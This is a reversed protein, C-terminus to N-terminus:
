PDFDACEELDGNKGLYCEEDMDMMLQMDDDHVAGNEGFKVGFAKALFSPVEVGFVTPKKAQVLNGVSAARDAPASIGISSSPILFTPIMIQSDVSEKFTRSLIYGSVWRLYSTRIWASKLLSVFVDKTANKGDFDDEDNDFVRSVQHVATTSRRAQQPMSPAFAHASTTLFAALILSTVTKM